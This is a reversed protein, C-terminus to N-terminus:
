KELEKDIKNIIDFYTMYTNFDKISIGKGINKLVEERTMGQAIKNTLKQEIRQKIKYINHSNIDDFLKDNEENEIIEFATLYLYRRQYTENAGLSQIKTMRQLDSDVMPSTFKIMTDPKEVDVITLVAQEKEFSIFPVIGSEKCAKQIVPLIDELEFYNFTQNKGSKKLETGAVIERAKQLKEYINM